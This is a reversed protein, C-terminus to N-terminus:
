NEMGGMDAETAAEVTDRSRELDLGAQYWWWMGVQARPAREM